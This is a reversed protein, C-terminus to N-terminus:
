CATSRLAACGATSVTGRVPGFDSSTKRTRTHTLRRGRRDRSRHAFPGLM